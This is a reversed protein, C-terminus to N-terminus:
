KNFPKTYHETGCGYRTSSCSSLLMILSIAIAIIFLIKMILRKNKKRNLSYAKLYEPSIKNLEELAIKRNLLSQQPNNM